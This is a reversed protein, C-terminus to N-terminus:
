RRGSLRAHMAAIARAFRAREDVTPYREDNPDAGFRETYLTFKRM